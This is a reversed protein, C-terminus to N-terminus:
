RGIQSASVKRTRTIFSETIPINPGNVFSDMTVCDNCKHVGSEREVSAISRRNMRPLLMSYRSNLSIKSLIRSSFAPM